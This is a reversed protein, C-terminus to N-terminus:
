RDENQAAVRDPLTALLALTKAWLPSPPWPCCCEEWVVEELADRQVLAELLTLVRQARFARCCTCLDLERGGRVSAPPFTPTPTPTRAESRASTLQQGLVLVAESPWGDLFFAEVLRSGERGLHAWLEVSLAGLLAELFAWYERERFCERAACLDAFDESADCAMRGHSPLLPRLRQLGAAVSATDGSALSRKVESVM